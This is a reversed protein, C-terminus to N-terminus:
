VISSRDLDFVNCQSKELCDEFEEWGRSEILAAESRMIPILWVFVTPPSTEKLTAFEDPFVVPISAYLAASGSNQVITEELPFVEGRLLAQGRNTINEAVHILLKAFIQPEWRSEISFVFEQRVARGRGMSLSTNSLGLTSLTNVGSDPVNKFLCVQTLPFSESSWGEQIEGLYFELHEAVNM